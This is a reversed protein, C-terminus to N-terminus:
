VELIKKLAFFFIGIPINKSSALKIASGKQRAEDGTQHSLIQTDSRIGEWVELELLNM